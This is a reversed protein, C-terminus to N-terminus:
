CLFLLVNKATLIAVGIKHWNMGITMEEVFNILLPCESPFISSNVVVEIRLNSKVKCLGLYMCLPMCVCM